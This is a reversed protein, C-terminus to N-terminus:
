VVCVCFVCVFVRGCPVSLPRAFVCVRMCIVVKESLRRDSALRDKVKKSCSKDVKSKRIVIIFRHM